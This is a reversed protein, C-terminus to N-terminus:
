NPRQSQITRNKHSEDARRLRTETLLQYILGRAEYRTSLTDEIYESIGLIRALKAIGSGQKPTPPLLWKSDQPIIKM